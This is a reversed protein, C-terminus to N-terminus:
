RSPIHSQIVVLTALSSSKLKRKTIDDDHDEYVCNKTM